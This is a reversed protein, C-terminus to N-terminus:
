VTKLIQYKYMLYKILEPLLFHLIVTQRGAKLYVSEGHNQFIYSQRTKNDKNNISIVELYLLLHYM